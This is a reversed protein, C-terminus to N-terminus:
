KGFRLRFFVPVLIATTILGYAIKAYGAGDAGAMPTLWLM